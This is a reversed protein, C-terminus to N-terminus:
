NEKKVGYRGGGEKKQSTERACKRGVCLFIREPTDESLATGTAVALIEAFQDIELRLWCLIHWLITASTLYRAREM